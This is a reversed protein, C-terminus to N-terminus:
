TAMLSAQLSQGSKLRDFCRPDDILMTLLAQERTKISNGDHAGEVREVLVVGRVDVPSGSETASPIPNYGPKGETGPIEPALHTGEVGGAIRAMTREKLQDLAAEVHALARANAECAYKGAQFSRLRDAVIALLVEQTIGNVGAEKIPGNQFLVVMRSFSAVYGDPATASPNGLADFGTIDYRHCAGGAGPQDRVEVQLTENAGNVMHETIMRSSVVSAAITGAETGAPGAPAVQAKRMHKANGM